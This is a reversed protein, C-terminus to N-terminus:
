AEDHEYKSKIDQGLQVAVDRIKDATSLEFAMRM